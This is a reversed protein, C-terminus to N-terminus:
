SGHGSHTGYQLEKVIATVTETEGNSFTLSIEVTDGEVRPGDPRMLMIHLGGAQFEVSQGPAIEVLAVPSMTAIGDKESSLHFHAMAYGDADVGILQRASPGENTISMYAVHAMAGPPALPVMPNTVSLGDALAFSPFVSLACILLRKM